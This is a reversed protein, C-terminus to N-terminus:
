SDADEVPDPGSGPVSSSIEMQQDATESLAPSSPDDINPDIVPFYAPREDAQDVAGPMVPPLPHSGSADRPPPPLPAYFQPISHLGYLIMPPQAHAHAPQAIKKASTSARPFDDLDGMKLRYFPSVFLSRVRQLDIRDETLANSLKGQRPV